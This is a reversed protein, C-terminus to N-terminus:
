LMVLSFVQGSQAGYVQIGVSATQHWAMRFDESSGKVMTCFKSKRQGLSRKLYM